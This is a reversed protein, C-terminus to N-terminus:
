KIADWKKVIDKASVYSEVEYCCTAWWKARSSMGSSDVGWEIGVSSGCKPCWLVRKRAGCEFCQSWKGKV